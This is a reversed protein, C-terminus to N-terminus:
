RLTEVGAQILEAPIQDSGPSKYSKLKAIAIQVEIPNPDPVLLVAGHIEIQRVGSIRNVKL